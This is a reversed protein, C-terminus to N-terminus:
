GDSGSSRGARCCGGPASEPQLGVILGVTLLAFLPLGGEYAWGGASPTVVALVVIAALCVPALAVARIPMTRGHSWAALAAGALIEAFRSWSAYYVADAGLLRATLVASASFVLLLRDPARDISRRHRAAWATMAAMAVPWVWYFQEEIALSWFHAVPSPSRFLDAYSQHALLRQWNTVQLLAGLIDSRPTGAVAHVGAAVLVSIGALCM